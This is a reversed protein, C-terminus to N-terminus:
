ARVSPAARVRARRPLLPDLRWAAERGRTAEKIYRTFLGYSRRRVVGAIWDAHYAYTRVANFPRMLVFLHRTWDADPLGLDEAGPLGALVRRLPKPYSLRQADLLARQLRIGDLTFGSQRLYHEYIM